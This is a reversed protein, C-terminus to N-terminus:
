SFSKWHSFLPNMNANNPLKKFQNYFKTIQYFWINTYCFHIPSYIWSNGEFYSKLESTARRSRSVTTGGRGEGGEVRSVTYGQLIYPLDRAFFFGEVYICIFKMLMSLCTAPGVNCLTIEVSSIVYIYITISKLNQIM